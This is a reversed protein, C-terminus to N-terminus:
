WDRGYVPAHLLVSEYMGRDVTIRQQSKFRQLKRRYHEMIRDLEDCKGDQRM